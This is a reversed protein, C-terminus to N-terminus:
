KKISNLNILIYIILIALCILWLYNYLFSLFNINNFLYKTIIYVSVFLFIPYIYKRKTLENTYDYLQKSCISLYIFIIFLWQFSLINEINNIFDLISIKKLIVYEPYKFINILEIGLVGQTLLITLSIIINSILYQKIIKSNINKFDNNLGGYLLNPATSFLAFELAGFLIKKISVNFLPLYNLIKIEPLLSFFEFAFLFFYSLLLISSVKYNVKINKSNIYLIIVLMPFLIFFKDTDILYISSILNVFETLGIMFLIFILIFMIVKRLKNAKKYNLKNIIYLIISGFLTGILISFIASEKADILVKSIGIGMFLAKSFFHTLSLFDKENSNTM